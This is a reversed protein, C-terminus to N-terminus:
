RAFAAKETGAKQNLESTLGVSTTASLVGLTKGQLELKSIRDNYISMWKQANVSPTAENKKAWYELRKKTQEFDFMFTASM